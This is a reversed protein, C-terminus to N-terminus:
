PGLMSQRQLTLYQAAADLQNDIEAHVQQRIHDAMVADGALIAAAYQAVYAERRQVAVTVALTAAAQKKVIDAPTM